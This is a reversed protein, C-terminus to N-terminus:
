LGEMCKSLKHKVYWGLKVSSVSRESMNEWDNLRSELENCSYTLSAVMKTLRRVDAAKKSYESIAIRRSGNFDITKPKVSMMTSKCATVPQSYNSIKDTM